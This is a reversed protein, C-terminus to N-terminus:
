TNYLRYDQGTGFSACGEDAVYVPSNHFTNPWANPSADAAGEFMKSWLLLHTLSVGTPLQCRAMALHQERTLPTDWFSCPGIQANFSMGSRFPGYGSGPINPPFPGGDTYHFTPGDVLATRSGFYSYYNTSSSDRSFGFYMWQGIELKYAPNVNGPVCEVGFSFGGGKQHSCKIGYGVHGGVGDRLTQLQVPPFPAYVGLIRDDSPASAPVMFWLGMSMDFETYFQTRIGYDIYQSPGLKFEYAM